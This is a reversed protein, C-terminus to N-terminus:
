EVPDEPHEENWKAILEEPTKGINERNVIDGSFADPTNLVNKIAKDLRHSVNFSGNLGITPTYTGLDEIKVAMGRKNYYSVVSSVESIAIQLDGKNLGTRDSIHEVIEPMQITKGLDIKPRNANIAVIRNAM